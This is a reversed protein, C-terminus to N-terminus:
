LCQGKGKIGRLCQCVGGPSCEGGDMRSAHTNGLSQSGPCGAMGMARAPDGGEKHHILAAELELAHPIWPPEWPFPLTMHPTCKAAKCVLSEMFATTQPDKPTTLQKSKTQENKGIVSRQM